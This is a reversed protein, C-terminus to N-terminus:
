ICVEGLVLPTFIGAPLYHSALLSKTKYTSIDVDLWKILIMYVVYWVDCLTLPDNYSMYGCWVCRFMMCIYIYYLTGGCMDYVILCICLSSCVDSSVSSGRCSCDRVLLEGAENNTKRGSGFWCCCNWANTIDDTAVVGEEFCIWCHHPSM